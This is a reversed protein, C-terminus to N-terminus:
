EDPPENGNNDYRYRMAYALGVPASLPAVSTIGISTGENIREIKLERPDISVDHLNINGHATRSNGFAMLSPFVRRVLPLAYSQFTAPSQVSSTDLPDQNNLFNSFFNFDM